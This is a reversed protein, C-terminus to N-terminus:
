NILAKNDETLFVTDTFEAELLAKLPAIVVNETNYHGADFVSIGLFEGNIFINHKVDGTILADCGSSKVEYLYNGGSGSCVLVTKVTSETQNYRVTGGLRSKIYEALKDTSLPSPLTGKNILFGDKATVKQVNQLGLAFCLTDNVGGTGIDLNTHMSIVSIGSKILNFVASGALVTKIGGFIVPHHTIILNCGNDAATKIAAPTCDLSIVAGTVESDPDGALIGVNDFDCATNVPFKENLFDFIDKVTMLM